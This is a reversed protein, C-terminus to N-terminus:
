KTTQTQKSTQKYLKTKTQKYFTTQKNPETAIKNININDTNAQKNTQM